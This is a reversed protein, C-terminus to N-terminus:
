EAYYTGSLYDLDDIGDIMIVEMVGDGIATITFTAAVPGDNYEMEWQTDYISTTTGNITSLFDGNKSYNDFQISYGGDDQKCFVAYTFSGDDFYKVYYDYIVADGTQNESISDEGGFFSPDSGGAQEVEHQEELVAKLNDPTTLTITQVNWNEDIGNYLDVHDDIDMLVRMINIGTEPAMSSDWEYAGFRIQELNMYTEELLKDYTIQFVVTVDETSPTGNNIMGIAGMWVARSGGAKQMDSVRKEDFKWKGNYVSNLGTGISVDESISNIIAGDVMKEMSGRQWWAIVGVIILGWVIIAYVGWLIKKTGAIMKLM